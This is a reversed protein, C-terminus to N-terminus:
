PRQHFRRGKRFFHNDRKQGTHNEKSREYREKKQNEQNQEKTESDGNDGNDTKQMKRDEQRHNHEYKKEKKQSLKDSIHKTLISCINGKKTVESATGLSTNKNSSTKQRSKYRRDRELKKEKRERLVEEKEALKDEIDDIFNEKEEISWVQEMKKDVETRNSITQELEESYHKILLKMLDKSTKDLIKNWSNVFNEEQISPKLKITLGKPIINEELYQNLYEMHLLYRLEKEKSSYIEWGMKKVTEIDPYNTIDESKSEQWSPKQVITEISSNSYLSNTSTSTSPTQSTHIIESNEEQVNEKTRSRTSRTTIKSM